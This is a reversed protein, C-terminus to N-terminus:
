SDLLRVRRNRLHRPSRPAAVSAGPSVSLQVTSGTTRFVFVTAHNNVVLGRSEYCGLRYIRGHGRVEMGAGFSGGLDPGWGVGAM